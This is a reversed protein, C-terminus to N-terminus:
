PVASYFAGTFSSNTLGGGAQVTNLAIFGPGDTPVDALFQVNADFDLFSASNYVVAGTGIGLRELVGGIAVKGAYVGISGTITGPQAVVTDAAMAVYYGGSAAVDGLSAVVPREPRAERAVRLARWIVDSAVSSGGPSVVRLVVADISPDDTIRRLDAAISDSGAVV